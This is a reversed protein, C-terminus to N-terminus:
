GPSSQSSVENCGVVSDGPFTSLYTGIEENEHGPVPGQCLYLVKCKSKHFKRLNDHAQKKDLDIQIADQGETVDFAGSLKMDDAFKSPTTVAQGQLSTTTFTPTLRKEWTFLGAYIAQLQVLPPKAQIVPFTAEAFPNFVSYCDAWPLLSTM